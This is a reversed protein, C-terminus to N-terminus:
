GVGLLKLADNVVRPSRFTGTTWLPFRGDVGDEPDRSKAVAFIRKEPATSSVQVAGSVGQAPVRNVHGKAASKTPHSVWRVAWMELECIGM